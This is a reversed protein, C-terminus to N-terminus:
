QRCPIIETRYHGNELYTSALKKAQRMTKAGTVVCLETRLIKGYYFAALAFPATKSVLAVLDKPATTTETTAITSFTTQM